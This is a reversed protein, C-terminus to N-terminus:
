DAAMGMSHRSSRSRQRRGPRARGNQSRHNAVQVASGAFAEAFAAADARRELDVRLRINHAAMSYQVNRPEIRRHEFWEMIEGLRIALSEDGLVVQVPYM